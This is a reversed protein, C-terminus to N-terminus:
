IALLCIGKKDALAVSAEKDLFLTKHAEVALCSVKAKILNRMTRLGIVPIDFRMDQKPKSVKVAVAAGKGLRGGRLITSDTGELAEVALVAKQKVVVTQGIDFYAVAKAIEKGFRIDEWEGESPSRRTFVGSPCLYDDLLTTSDMLEMGLSALRGAVASFITDAKKNHLGAFLEKLEDDPFLRPDFLNCPSVQGAMIVKKIGQAQFIEFLKKLEGARVWFLKDVLFGVQRLTDGRIGVAVVKLGKERAAKAFLLPFRGNGAILGIKDYAM